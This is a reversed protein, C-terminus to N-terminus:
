FNLLLWTFTLSAFVSGWSSRTAFICSQISPSVLIFAYMVSASHQWRSQTSSWLSLCFLPLRGLNGHHIRISFSAEATLLSFHPCLQSLWPSFTNLPFIFNASLHCFYPVCPDTLIYIFLVDNSSASTVLAIEITCHSYM